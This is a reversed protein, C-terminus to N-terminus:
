RSGKSRKPPAAAFTARVRGKLQVVRDLNDYEMSDARLQTAGRTVTVPLHSRLQETNLFAHLFEGRFELGDAGEAAGAPQRLVRAGGSLQVESGDGNSLAAKASATTVGGNPATARIRPNDIELTDTDPFHRLVDGEIQTRLAGDAGFRQVTFRTMTYDPLHRLPAEPRAAEPLPTNKVLWWSGLALLAMLLLPLYASLADAARRPWAVAGHRMPEGLTAGHPTALLAPDHPPTALRATPVANNM